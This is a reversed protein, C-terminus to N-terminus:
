AAPKRLPENEDELVGRCIAQMKANSFGEILETYQKFADAQTHEHGWFKMVKARCLPGFFKYTVCTQHMYVHRVEQLSLVEGLPENALGTSTLPYFLTVGAYKKCPLRLATGDKDYIENMPLFGYNPPLDYKWCLLKTSALEAKLQPNTLREPHQALDPLAPLIKPSGEMYGPPFTVEIHSSPTDPGSAAGASAAPTAPGPQGQEDADEEEHAAGTGGGKKKRAPPQKKKPAAPAKGKEKVARKPPM